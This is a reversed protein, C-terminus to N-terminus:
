ARGSSRRRLSSVSTLTFAVRQHPQSLFARTNV